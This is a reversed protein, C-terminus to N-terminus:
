SVRELACRGCLKEVTLPATFRCGSCKGIPASSLDPPIEDLYIVSTRGWGPPYPLPERVLPKEGPVACFAWGVLSSADAPLAPPECTSCRWREGPARCFEGGGCACSAAPDGAGDLALASLESEESLEGRAVRVGSPTATGDGYVLLTGLPAPSPLPVGCQRCADGPLLDTRPQASPGPPPPSIARAVKLRRM